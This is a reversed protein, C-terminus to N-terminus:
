EMTLGKLDANKRKMNWKTENYEKREGNEMIEWMKEGKKKM